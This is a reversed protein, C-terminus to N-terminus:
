DFSLVTVWPVVTFLRVQEAVIEFALCGQRRCLSDSPGAVWGLSVSPFTCPLPLPVGGVCAAAARDAHLSLPSADLRTGAVWFAQTLVHAKTISTSHCPCPM